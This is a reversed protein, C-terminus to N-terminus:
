AMAVGRNALRSRAGLARDNYPASVRGLTMGDLNITMSGMLARIGELLESNNSGDTLQRQNIGAALEDYTKSNLPLVAEDSNGEGILAMTPKTVQGGNAFHPLEFNPLGIEPLNFEPLKFNALKETMYSGGDALHILADGLFWISAALVDIGVGAIMSGFGVFGEGIGLVISGVGAVASGVGFAALAPALKLLADTFGSLKELNEPEGVKMGVNFFRDLAGTLVDLAAGCVALGAGIIMLGFGAFGAGIGLVVSGVGAIAGGVGFAALAPALKWLLEVVQDGYPLMKILTDTFMDFAGAVLMIGVGLLAAGVGVLAFAAGVALVAVIAIPFAAALGAMVTVILAIVGFLIGFAEISEIPVSGIKVLADAILNMAFGVIVMAASFALMGGIFAIADKKLVTVIGGILLLVGSIMAGITIFAVLGVQSISGLKVIADAMSSIGIGIMLFAAGFAAIEAATGISKFMTNMGGMPDAAKGKGGRMSLLNAFLQSGFFSSVGKLLLIGGVLPVISKALFEANDGIWKFVKGIGEALPSLAQMLPILSNIIGAVTMGFDVAGNGDESVIGLGKAFSTFLSMIGEGIGKWNVNQFVTSFFEGVQKIIGPLNESIWQLAPELQAALAKIVPAMANGFVVASNAVSALVKGFVEGISVSATGDENMTHFTMGFTDSLTKALTDIANFDLAGWFGNIADTIFRFTDDIAKVFIGLFDTEGFQKQLTDFVNNFTKEVLPAQDLLTAFIDSAADGLAASASGNSPFVREVIRGVADFAAQLKDAHNAAGSIAHEFFAFTNNGIWKIMSKFASVLTEMVPLSVKDLEVFKNVLEGISTGYKQAAENSSPFAREQMEFVATRVENLANWDIADRIGIVMNSFYDGLKNQIWTSLKNIEGSVVTQGITDLVKAVAKGARTRLNQLATDIGQTADKAQQEFSAFGEGGEKNLRIIADIFENMHQKYMDANAAIDDAGLGGGLYEYLANTDDVGVVAKALQKMQGPAAMMLSKWDQLDPKGKTLIQRFQEMASNAMATGQGGALMANNLAIGLDTAKDLDGIAATYGSVLSTLEPLSTPLGDLADSMKNISTTALDTSFGLNTMVKPFNAMTDVRNIATNTADGIGSLVSFIGTYAIASTIGAIVGGSRFGTIMQKAATLGYTKANPIMSAFASRVLAAGKSLATRVGTVLATGARRGISAAMQPLTNLSRGISNSISTGIGAAKAQTAARISGLISSGIGKGAAAARVNIGKVLGGAIAKTLKPTTTVFGDNFKEGSLTGLKRFMASFDRSHNQIIEGLRTKFVRGFDEAAERGAAEFAGKTAKTLNDFKPTIVVYASAIKSSSM